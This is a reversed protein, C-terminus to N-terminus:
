QKWNNTTTYVPIHWTKISWVGGLKVLQQCLVFSLNLCLCNNVESLLLAVQKAALCNRLTHLVAAAM